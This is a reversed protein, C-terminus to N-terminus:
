EFYKWCLAKHPRNLSKRKTKHNRNSQAADSDSTTCTTCDSNLSDTTQGAYDGSDSDSEIILSRDKLTDNSQSSGELSDDNIENLEAILQSRKM